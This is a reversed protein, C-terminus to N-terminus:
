RSVVVCDTEPFGEGSDAGACDLVGVGLDVAEAYGGVLAVEGRRAVVGHLEVVDFRRIRVWEEVKLAVGAVDRPYGEVALAFPHHRTGLVAGDLDPFCPRPGNLPTIAMPRRHIIHRNMRILALNDATIPRPPHANPIQRLIRTRM